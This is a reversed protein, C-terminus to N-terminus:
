LGDYPSSKFYFYSTQNPTVFHLVPEHLAIASYQICILDSEFKKKSLILLGIDSNEVVECKHGIFYADKYSHHILIHKIQCLTFGGYETPEYCLFMGRRYQIGRFTMKDSILPPKAFYCCESILNSIDKSFNNPIFETANEADIKNAYTSSHSMLLAQLLQHKESLSWLINKYNPSHRLINKFYRHKSEFRMTWLHRLPGFKVILTAYHSMYHHKPRLKTNSFLSKRMNLYDCILSQLVAVQGISIHTSLLLSCISRLCLVMRWVPNTTDIIDYLAFPLIQLLRMNESSSGILKDGKKILPLNEYSVEHKFRVSQLRSNLVEYTLLKTSVFFKIALMLDYQVIGEYIDHGLCPPLGPSCVHYFQLQNLVSNLKIGRSSEETLMCLVIDSDYSDKTRLPFTNNIGDEFKEKTIHCYRCFYQNSFFNDVFGGIQHSGLNDGVMAVVTGKVKQFLEDKVVIGERELLQLDRIIIEFCKNFGYKNIDKELYLAVLQIHDVRTRNYPPVNAVIM